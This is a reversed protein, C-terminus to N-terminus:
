DAVGDRQDVMEEYAIRGMASVILAVDEPTEKRSHLAFVAKAFQPPAALQDRKERANRGGRGSKGRLRKGNADYGEKWWKGHGDTVWWWKGDDHNHGQWSSSQWSDRSWECPSWQRWSSWSSEEWSWASTPLDHSSSAPLGQLEDNEDKM